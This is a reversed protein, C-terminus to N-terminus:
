NTKDFSNEPTYTYDKYADAVGKLKFPKNNGQADKEKGLFAMEKKSLDFVADYVLKSSEVWAHDQNKATDGTRTCKGIELKANDGLARFTVFTLAAVNYCKGGKKQAATLAYSGITKEDTITKVDLPIYSSRKVIREYAAKLQADTAKNEPKIKAESIIYGAATNASTNGLDKYSYSYRKGNSKFFWAASDIVVSKNRLAPAKGKSLKFYYYATGVKKLGTKKYMKGTSKSFFYYNKGVKQLGKKVKKSSFCYWASGVKFLKNAKKTYKKAKKIVKKSVAAHAEEQEFTGILLALGAALMIIMFLSTIRRFGIAKM